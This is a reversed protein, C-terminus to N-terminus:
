RREGITLQREDRRALVRTSPLESTREEVQGSGITQVVEPKLVFRPGARFTGGAFLWAPCM